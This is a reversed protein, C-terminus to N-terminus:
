LILKSQSTYVSTSLLLIDRFRYSLGKRLHNLLSLVVIVRMRLSPPLHPLFDIISSDLNLIYSYKNYYEKLM